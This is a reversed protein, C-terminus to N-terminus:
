PKQHNRFAHTLRRHVEKYNKCLVEHEAGDTDNGIILIISGKRSPTLGFDKLIKAAIFKPDNAKARPEKLYKNLVSDVADVVPKKM